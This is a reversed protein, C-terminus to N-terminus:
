IHYQINVLCQYREIVDFLLQQDILEDVLLYATIVAGYVDYTVDVWGDAINRMDIDEKLCEYVKLVRDRVSPIACIKPKEVDFVHVSDQRKGCHWMSVDVKYGDADKRVGTVIGDDILNDEILNQLEAYMFLVFDRTSHISAGDILNQAM